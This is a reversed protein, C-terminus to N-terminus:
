KRVRGRALIRTAGFAVVMVAVALLALHDPQSFLHQEAQAATMGEHHGPHALALSPMILLIAALQKM